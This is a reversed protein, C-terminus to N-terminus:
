KGGQGVLTGWGHGIQEGKHLSALASAASTHAAVCDPWRECSRRPRALGTVTGAGVSVISPCWVTVGVGKGAWTLWAMM